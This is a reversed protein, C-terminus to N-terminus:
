LGLYSAIFVEEFYPIVLSFVDSKFGLVKKWSEQTGVSVGSTFTLSM